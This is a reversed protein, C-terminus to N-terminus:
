RPNIPSQTKSQIFRNADAGVPDQGISYYTFGQKLMSERRYINRGDFIIPKKLLSLMRKFDPQRFESWETSIVLADCGDLVKYMDSITQVEPIAQELNKLAVPDFARVSAGAAIAEKMLSISPAERIDDTDPKFAVGWFALSKGKINGSFHESIKRWFHQRQDQNVENVAAAIKCEYGVSKGMSMVGLIDKPFCSGGFGLGPHLFQNGIRKDATMGERVSRIDAGYYECLNAIENIFSIKCALMANSAYKIMESSPIDSIIIPNGQRVFPDYLDRLTQATAEDEVGCIVRDPRLFDNVAAGEKLFEPSNAIAFPKSTKSRILDRLRLTTGVPVTSKVVILKPQSDPLCQDIASAIDQAASMVATLDISGDVESAPTGVCILIIQANAYAKKKDTTFDLRDAAVNRAILEKLGPEYIPCEGRKLKAIKQEDLDLCIVHNGTNAFGAGSVLGVYGTGVMTLKM